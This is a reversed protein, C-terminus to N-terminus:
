HEGRVARLYGALQGCQGLAVPAPAAALIIM